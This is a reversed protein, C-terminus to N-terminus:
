GPEITANDCRKDEGWFRRALTMVPRGVKRTSRYNEIEHLSFYARGFFRFRTFTANYHGGTSHLKMMRQRTVGALLAADSANLLGGERRWALEFAEVECRSALRVHM